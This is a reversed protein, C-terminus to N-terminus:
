NTSILKLFAIAARTSVLHTKDFSFKIVKFELSSFMASNVKGFDKFDHEDNNTICQREETSDHNSDLASIGVYM